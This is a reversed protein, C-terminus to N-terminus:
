KGIECSEDYHLSIYREMLICIPYLDFIVRACARTRLACM